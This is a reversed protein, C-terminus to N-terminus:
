CLVVNENMKDVKQRDTIQSDFNSFLPQRNANLQMHIALAKQICAHEVSAPKDHLAV